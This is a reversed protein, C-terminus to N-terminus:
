REYFPGRAVPPPEAVLVGFGFVIETASVGLVALFLCVSAFAVWLLSRIM